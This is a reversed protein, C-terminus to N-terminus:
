AMTTMNQTFKYTRQVADRTRTLVADYDADSRKKESVGASITIKVM